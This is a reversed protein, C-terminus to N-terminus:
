KNMLALDLLVCATVAEIVVPVRLAIALDHRGAITFDEMKGTTTNLSNQQQPTSSAPKVVVRFVLPNGNSISGTIGGANNTATKGSADTIPDNHRSGPMKAAGFGSGFEIGKIAPISFVAHSILAEVSNFFPEGLGVPLPQAVCEVIGGVSDNAALANQLGTEINKEGGLEILKAEISLLPFINKLVKKAVVAAAVLCVTLRGSFHGGGRYDQFGKFKKEAVFDAHGPRFIEKQNEYDQSRTNKNEFIITLPAGTTKGNFVGSLFVPMDDEKRPTTGKQKSGKRRELDEEFDAETLSIGPPCGDIVVGVANGHSEGFISLRFLNGFNNV